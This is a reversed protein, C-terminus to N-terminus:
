PIYVCFFQSSKTPRSRNQCLQCNVKIKRGPGGCRYVSGVSGQPHKRRFTRVAPPHIVRVMTSLGLLLLHSSLLVLFSHLLFIFNSNLWTSYLFTLNFKVTLAFLLTTTINHPFTLVLRYFTPVHTSQRIRPKM